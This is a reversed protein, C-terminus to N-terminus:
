CRFSAMTYHFYNLTRHDLFYPKGAGEDTYSKSDVLAIRNGNLFVGQPRRPM